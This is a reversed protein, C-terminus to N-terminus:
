GEVMCRRTERQRIRVLQHGISAFYRGARRAVDVIVVRQRNSRRVAPIRAAMQGGPLLGIIRRVRRGSRRKRCRVARRAMVGDGPVRRDEIVAGRAPGQRARVLHRRRPFHHGAGVAVHPVVVGERRRVCIAVAAV